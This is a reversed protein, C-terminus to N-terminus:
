APNLKKNNANVIHTHQKVDGGLRFYQKSYAAGINVNSAVLPCSIFKVTKFCM